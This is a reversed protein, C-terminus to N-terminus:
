QKYYFTFKLLKLATQSHAQLLLRQTTPQPHLEAASCKGRLCLRHCLGWAGASPPFTPTYQTQLESAQSRPNDVCHNKHEPFALFCGRCGAGHFLHFALPICSKKGSVSLSSLISQIQSREKGLLIGFLSM